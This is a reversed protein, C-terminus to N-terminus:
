RRRAHLVLSLALLGLSLFFLTQAMAAPAGAAGTFGLLGAALAVLLFTVLYYAM